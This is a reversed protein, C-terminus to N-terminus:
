AQLGPLAPLSARLMAISRYAQYIQGFAGVYDRAAFLEAARQVLPVCNILQSYQQSHKDLYDYLKRIPSSTAEQLFDNTAQQEVEVNPTTQFPSLSGQPALQGGGYGPAMGPGAQFPLLGAFGGATQGIQGGLQPQGFMGGIAQGVPQAITGLLNGFFGQPALQGGGYGPAMGPGAQFPLLGAFGGAAQGIQGGLQPQGFMGGIAQGVPQAITGLLNGFFGQPALQGGGYGPAMGPGAQFLEFPPRPAWDSHGSMPWGGAQGFGFVGPKPYFGQPALQGGAAALWAPGYALGQQQPTGQMLDIVM